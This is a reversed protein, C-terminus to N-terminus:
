EAHSVEGGVSDKYLPNDEKYIPIPSNQDGVYGLAIKKMTEAELYDSLEMSGGKYDQINTAIGDSM